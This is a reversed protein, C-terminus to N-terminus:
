NDVAKTDTEGRSHTHTLDDALLVELTAVDQRTMAAMRKAELALIDQM